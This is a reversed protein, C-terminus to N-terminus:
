KDEKSKNYAKRFAIRAPHKTPLSLLFDVGRGRPQYRDGQRQKLRSIGRNIDRRSTNQKLIALIERTGMGMFPNDKTLNNIVAQNKEKVAIDFNALYKKINQRYREVNSLKTAGMRAQRKEDGFQGESEPDSEPEPIVAPVQRPVEPEPEIDPVQVQRPKQPKVPAQKIKNNLDEEAAAVASNLDKAIGVGTQGDYSRVVKFSGDPLNTIKQTRKQEDLKQLQEKILRVLKSKTLKM